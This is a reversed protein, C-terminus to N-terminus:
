RIVTVTGTKRYWINPEHSYRYRITYVYAASPLPRGNYTADWVANIDDTHWVQQGGRNFIWIEGDLLSSGQVQFCNNDGKSPTIINPVYLGEMILRLTIQATDSCGYISNTVLTIIVSDRGIPYEYVEQQGSGIFSTDAYWVRSAVNSSFDKLIITTNDMDAVFPNASIVAKFVDIQPIVLSTDNGCLSDISNAMFLHYERAVNPTVTLVAEEEHGHIEPNDPTSSWRWYDGDGSARLSCEHKECDYDHDIVPHPPIHFANINLVAVSDCIADSEFPVSYQGVSEYLQDNWLCVTGCVVTDTVSIAQDYVHILINHTYSITGLCEDVYSYVVMVNYDGPQLYRHTVSIGTATDGDGFYWVVDTTFENAVESSFHFVDNLCFSNNAESYWAFPMGNLFSHPNIPDLSAGVPYAYSEVDGLGYTHAVFGGSQSTITHSGHGIQIRAYVYEENGQLPYFNSADVVAGDLMINDSYIEKTVLNVYHNSIRGTNSNAFTVSSFQQEIPHIVAVAPDGFQGACYGGKLYLFVSVPRSSELYFGANYAARSMSLERSQNANLMFSVDDYRVETSDYLATIKFYDSSRLTTMTIGFKRGWYVTPIVQEVLHDCAGCSEPVYACEHGAFVAIRKCGESWVTSGSLDGLTRFTYTEGRNLLVSFPIWPTFLSDEDIWSMNFIVETSDETAVVGVTTAWDSTDSATVTQVMYHQGLTATPLVNTIDYSAERYNSAYLSINEGTTIHLGKNWLKGEGLEFTDPVAVSTVVGPVVTFTQSWTSDTSVVRGTTAIDGSVLLTLHGSLHHNPLFTLWFDNGETTLGQGSAVGNMALLLALLLIHIRNM